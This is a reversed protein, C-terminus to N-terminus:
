TNYIYKFGKVYNIEILIGYRAMRYQLQLCDHTHRATHTGDRTENLVSTLLAALRGGFSNLSRLSRSLWSMPPPENTTAENVRVYESRLDKVFSALLLFNISRNPRARRYSKEKEYAPECAYNTRLAYHSFCCLLLLLLLNRTTKKIM